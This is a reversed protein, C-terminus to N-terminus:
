RVCQIRKARFQKRKRGQDGRVEVLHTEEDVDVDDVRIGRTLTRPRQVREARLPREDLAAVQSGRRLAGIQEEVAVVEVLEVRRPYVGAVVVAGAVCQGGRCRTRQGGAVADRVRYLERLAPHGFADPGGVWQAVAM